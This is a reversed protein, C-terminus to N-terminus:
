KRLELKQRAILARLEATFVKVETLEDKKQKELKAIRANNTEIRNIITDFMQYQSERQAKLEKKIAILSFLIVATCIFVGISHIWTIM